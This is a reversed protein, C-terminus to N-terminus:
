KLSEFQLPPTSFPSLCRRCYSDGSPYGGDVSGTGKKPSAQETTEEDKAIKRPPRVNVDPQPDTEQGVSLHAVVLSVTPFQKAPPDITLGPIKHRVNALLCFEGAGPEVVREALEVLKDLKLRVEEAAVEEPRATASAPTDATPSNSRGAFRLLRKEEPEFTGLEAVEPGNTPDARFVRADHLTMGTRNVVQLHGGVEETLAIGGGLDLMEESHMFGTNNSRVFVNLLGAGKGQRYVVTRQDNPKFRDPNDVSPFPLILAGPDEFEFDYSTGLSTYLAIYRTVHARPYNGQIEIVSVETRSRVFGIDLQAMRIVAVTGAIAILPAAVWAWEVRGISRFVIWNLPVLIVLYGGVMWLVFMRDPIEIQAAERLVTRAANPVPSFDNWAALGPGSRERESWEVQAKQADPGYGRHLAGDIGAVQSAIKVDADRTFYRLKTVYQADLRHKLPDAWAVHILSEEEEDNAAPPWSGDEPIPGVSNPAMGPPPPANAYSRVTSREFRRAPRRLLFANYLEDMGPWSTLELSSLRFATVVVRGSGVRREAILDGSGGVFRADSHMKLTVGQLPRVPELPPVSTSGPKKRDSWALLPEFDDATLERADGATAPLYPSLFSDRLTDLTEPGSLILQGGWHLWDLLALQQDLNLAFPAADDWLVYAIGTWLLPHSPLALRQNARDARMLSLLYYPEITQIFDDTPPRITALGQLYNYREPSRSLVVFHYQYSPMPSLIADRVRGGGSSSRLGYTVRTQHEVDPVFLISEFPKAKGKQLTVQRTSTLDYSVGPLSISKGRQDTAVTELQGLFHAHNARAAIMTATWHSPKYPPGLAFGEGKDGQGDAIRGDSPRTRLLAVEFPPKEKEKEAAREKALKEELEKQVQAPDKSCGGCGPLTVMLALAAMLCVAPAMPCRCGQGLKPNAASKANFVMPRDQLRGRRNVQKKWRLTYLSPWAFFLPM